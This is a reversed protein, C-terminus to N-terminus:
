AKAALNADWMSKIHNLQYLPKFCFKVPNLVRTLM